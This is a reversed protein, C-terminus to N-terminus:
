LDALCGCSRARGPCAGRSWSIWALKRGTPPRRHRLQFDTGGPFRSRHRQRTPPADLPDRRHLQRGARGRTTREAVAYVLDRVDAIWFDGYRVKEVPDDPPAGVRPRLHRLCRPRTPATPTTSSGTTSKPTTRGGYRHVRTGVDPLIFGTLSASGRRDQRPEQAGGCCRWPWGGPRGEVWYTDPGDVRGPLPHSFATFSDGTIPSKWIGHPAVTVSM